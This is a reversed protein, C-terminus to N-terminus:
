LGNYFINRVRHVCTYTNVTISKMTTTATNKVDRLVRAVTLTEREERRRFWRMKAARASSLSPVSPSPLPSFLSSSSSALPHPLPLSLFLSHRARLRSLSRADLLTTFLLSSHFPTLPLSPFLALARPVVCSAARAREVPHALVRRSRTDERWRSRGRADETPGRPRIAGLGCLDRVRSRKRPPM